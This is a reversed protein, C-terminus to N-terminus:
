PDNTVRKRDGFTVGPNWVGPIIITRMDEKLTGEECVRGLSVGYRLVRIDSSIPNVRRTFGKDVWM